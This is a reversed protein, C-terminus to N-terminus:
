RPAGTQKPDAAGPSLVVIAYLDLRDLLMHHVGQESRVSLGTSAGGPAVV